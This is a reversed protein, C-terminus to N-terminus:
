FCILHLSSLLHFFLFLSPSSPFIRDGIWLLWKVGALLKGRMFSTNRVDPMNSLTVWCNRNIWWVIKMVRFTMNSMIQSLMKSVFKIHINWCSLCYFMLVHLFIVSHFKNLFLKLSYVCLILIFNVLQSLYLFTNHLFQLFLNYPLFLNLFLQHIM